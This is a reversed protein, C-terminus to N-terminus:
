PPVVIVQRTGWGKDVPSTNVSSTLVNFSSLASVQAPTAVCLFASVTTPKTAIGTGVIPIAIDLYFRHVELRRGISPDDSVPYVAVGGAPANGGLPYRIFRPTYREMFAARDADKHDKDTEIGIDASVSLATKGIDLEVTGGLDVDPLFDRFPDSM